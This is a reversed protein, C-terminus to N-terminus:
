SINYLNYIYVYMTSCYICILCVYEYRPWPQPSTAPRWVVPAVPPTALTPPRSGHLVALGLFIYGSCLSCYVIYLIYYYLDHIIYFLNGKPKRFVTRSVHDRSKQHNPSKRWKQLNGSFHLHTAVEIDRPKAAPFWKPNKAWLRCLLSACSMITEMFRRVRQLEDMNVVFEVSLGLLHLLEEFRM